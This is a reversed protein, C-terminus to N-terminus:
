LASTKKLSGLFSGLFNVASLCKNPSSTSKQLLAIDFASKFHTKQPFETLVNNCNLSEIYSDFQEIFSIYGVVNYNTLNSCDFYQRSKADTLDLFLYDFILNDILINGEVNYDYQVVTGYGQFTALDDASIEKTHVIVYRNANPEAPVSASASVQNVLPLGTITAQLVPVSM